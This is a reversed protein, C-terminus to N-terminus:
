CSDGHSVMTGDHSKILPAMFHWSATHEVLYFHHFTVFKCTPLCAPLEYLLLPTCFLLPHNATSRIAAAAATRGLSALFTRALSFVVCLNSRMLIKCMHLSSGLIFSNYPPGWRLCSNDCLEPFLMELFGWIFTSEFFGEKIEKISPQPVKVCIISKSYSWKTESGIVWDMSEKWRLRLWRGELIEAAVTKKHTEQTKAIRMVAPINQSKKCFWMTHFGLKVTPNFRPHLSSFALPRGLYSILYGAFYWAKPKPLQKQLQGNRLYVTNLLQHSVFPWLLDM